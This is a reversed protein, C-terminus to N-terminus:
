SMQNCTKYEKQYYIGIYEFNIKPMQHHCRQIGTAKALKM